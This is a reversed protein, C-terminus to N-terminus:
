AGARPDARRGGGLLADGFSAARRIADNLATPWGDVDLHADAHLRWTRQGDTVVGSVGSGDPALDRVEMGDYVTVLTDAVCHHKLAQEFRRPAIAFPAQSAAYPRLVGLVGHRELIAQSRDDLVAPEEGDLPEHGVVLCALGRGSVVKATVLAGPGRGVILLPTDIM